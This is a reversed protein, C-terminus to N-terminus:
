SIPMGEHRSTPPFQKRAEAVAFLPRDVMTEVLCAKACAAAIAQRRGWRAVGMGQFERSRRVNRMRPDFGAFALEDHAM